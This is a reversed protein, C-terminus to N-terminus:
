YGFYRNRVTLFTTRVFENHALILPLRPHDDMNQIREDAKLSLKDLQAIFDEIHELLAQSTYAYYQERLMQKQEYNGQEHAEM